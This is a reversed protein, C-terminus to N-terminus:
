NFILKTKAEEINVLADGMVVLITVIIYDFTFNTLFEETIELGAWEEVTLFDVAYETKTKEEIAILHIFEGVHTKVFNFTLVLGLFKPKATKVTEFLEEYYVEDSGPYLQQFTLAIDDFTYQQFFQQVTM